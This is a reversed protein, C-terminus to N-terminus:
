VGLCGSAGGARSMTRRKFGVGPEWSAREGAIVGEDGVPREPPGDQASIWMGDPGEGGVAGPQRDLNRVTIM